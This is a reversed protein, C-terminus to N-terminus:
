QRWALQWAPAGPALRWRRTRCPSSPQEEITLKETEEENLSRIRNLFAREDASLKSPKKTRSMAALHRIWITTLAAVFAAGLLLLLYAIWSPQYTAAAVRNLDNNQKPDILQAPNSAAEVVNATAGGAGESNPSVPWATAATTVLSESRSEDDAPAAAVAALGAEAAKQTAQEQMAPKSVNAPAAAERKASAEENTRTHNVKKKPQPAPKAPANATEQVALERVPCPYRDDDCAQAYRSRLGAILGAVAEVVNAATGGGAGESNPSVPWATPQPAPKAPANATEQVALERVSCPYRDDDCAQAYRSPVGAILGAGAIMMALTCLTRM